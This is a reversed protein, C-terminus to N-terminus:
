RGYVSCERQVSDIPVSYKLCFGEDHFGVIACKELFECTKLKLLCYEEDLLVLDALNVFCEKSRGDTGVFEVCREDSFM